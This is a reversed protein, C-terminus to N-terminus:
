RNWDNHSITEGGNVTCLAILLKLDIDKSLQKASGDAFLACVGYQSYSSLLADSKPKSSTVRAIGIKERTVDPDRPETWILQLGSCEGVLLTQGLGDHESIFDLTVPGEPPNVTSPGSILGYDAFARQRSDQRDPRFPSTLVPLWHTTIDHNESADWAADFNWKRYLDSRDFERCLNVRWSHLPSSRPLTTQNAIAYYTIAIGVNHLNNLNQMGRAAVRSGGRFSPLIMCAVLVLLVLLGGWTLLCGWLGNQQEAPANM